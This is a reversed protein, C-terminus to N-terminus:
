ETEETENEEPIALIISLIDEPMPNAEEIMTDVQIKTDTICTEYNIKLNNAKQIGDSWFKAISQQEM